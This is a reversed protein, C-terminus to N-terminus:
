RTVISYSTPNFSAPCESYTSHGAREKHVNTSQEAISSIRFESEQISLGNVGEWGGGELPLPMLGLPKTLNPASPPGRVGSSRLAGRGGPALPFSWPTPASLLDDSLIPQSPFDSGCLRRRILAASQCNRFQPSGAARGADLLPNGGELHMSGPDVGRPILRSVKGVACRKVGRNGGRGRRPYPSPTPSISFSLALAWCFM